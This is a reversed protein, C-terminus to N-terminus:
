NLQFGFRTGATDRFLLQVVALVACLEASNRLSADSKPDLGNCM